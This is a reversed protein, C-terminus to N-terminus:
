GRIEDSFRVIKTRKNQLHIRRGHLAGVCAATLPALWFLWFYTWEVHNGHLGAVVAPGFSRTPNIGCGTIPLCVLHALFVSFGIAIPASSRNASSKNVATEFVVLILLLAMMFEAVFANAPSYRPNLSNAGLSKTFDRPASWPEDSDEAGGGSTTALLLAAGFVSGILQGAFNALGQRWSLEGALVLAFTVACNIQGGGRHATAYILVMIATGFAFSVALTWAPGPTGSGSFTDATSAAASCGVYVFLMMTVFETAAAEWDVVVKEELDEKPM